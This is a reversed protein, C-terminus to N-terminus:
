SARAEDVAAIAALQADRQEFVSRSSVKWTSGPMRM